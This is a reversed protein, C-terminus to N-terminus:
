GNSKTKEYVHKNVSARLQISFHLLCLSILIKTQLLKEKFETMDAPIISHADPQVYNLKRICCHKIVHVYIKM